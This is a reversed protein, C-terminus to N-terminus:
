LCLVYNLLDDVYIKIYEYENLYVIFVMLVYQFKPYKSKGRLCM